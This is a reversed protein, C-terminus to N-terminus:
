LCGFIRILGWLGVFDWYIIEKFGIFWMFSIFNMLRMLSMFSIFNMLRMFRIFRMFSILRIFRM